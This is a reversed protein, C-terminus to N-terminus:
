NFQTKVMERLEIWLLNIKNYLQNKVKTCVKTPIVKNHFFKM